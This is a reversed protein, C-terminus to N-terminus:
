IPVDTTISTGRVPFPIASCAEREKGPLHTCLLSASALCIACGEGHFAAQRVTGGEVRFLVEIRDGCLPNDRTARHTADIAADRGRPARAHERVWERYLTEPNEGSGRTM